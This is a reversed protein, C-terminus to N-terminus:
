PWEGFEVAESIAAEIEGVDVLFALPGRLYLEEAYQQKRIFRHLNKLAGAKSVSSIQWTGFKERISFMKM